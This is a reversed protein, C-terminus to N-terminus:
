KSTSVFHLQSRQLYPMSHQDVEASKSPPSPPKSRRVFAATVVLSVCAPVFWAWNMTPVDSATEVFVTTVGYGLSIGVPLALALVATAPVTEREPFWHQSM